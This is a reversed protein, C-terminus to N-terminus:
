NSKIKEIHNKKEKALFKIMESLEQKKQYATEHSLSVIEELRLRKRDLEIIKEVLYNIQEDKNKDLEASLPNHIDFPRGSITTASTKLTSQLYDAVKDLRIIHDEKEDILDTLDNLKNNFEQYKAKVLDELKQAHNSLPGINQSRLKKIEEEKETVLEFLQKLNNKREEAKLSLKKNIKTLKVIESNLTSNDANLDKITQALSQFNFSKSQIQNSLSQNEGNINKIENEFRSKEDNSRENKAKLSIIEYKLSQIEKKLNNVILNEVKNDAFSSGLYGREHHPTNSDFTNFLIKKDVSKKKHSSDGLFSITESAKRMENLQSGQLLQTQSLYPKNM